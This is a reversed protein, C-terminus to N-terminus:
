DQRAVNVHWEELNFYPSADNFVAGRVRSSVGVLRETEALFAYPQDFVILEQVRDFLPKQQEFTAAEAAAELLRDVEPNSYGVSNLTPEGPPATHWLPELDILTPEIWGSVIADFDGASELALLTGWEVFRPRAVAGVRALNAEILLCIDQRLDNESNTLLEFALEDGDRDLSGDGDSDAWGADALLRRAAAPDHPVPQLARNFAWMTSLVPGVAPRAHGLHVVDIIAQRDIAMALAMRVRRDSLFPRRLNWRVQSYGRDPFSVLRLRPDAAVRRADAPDLGNVLDIGGTLLQALLGVQSPMPRWIVRDLYPRGARWYDPNRELVLEQQPRHSAKRFPGASVVRGAWDLDRWAAYPIGGWAHAPIILGENADMLQYPYAHDFRFRVTKPGIAAVELISGKADSGLWAIEPAVQTRWSFAVDDATVPAGDSWRAAPDLFFTLELGDESHEWRSALGPAFSPPHDHYDVQEVALSPYVLSLIEDTTQDEALYPNWTMVDGLGGIVVTGGPAPAGDGVPAQPAPGSCATALGAALGLTLGLHRHARKM